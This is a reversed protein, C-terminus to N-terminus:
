YPLSKTEKWYRRVMWQHGTTLGDSSGIMM